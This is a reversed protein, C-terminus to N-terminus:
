AAEAAPRINEFREQIDTGDLMLEEFKVRGYGRSGCGGLADHELLKLGLLLTDFRAEDGAGNDGDVSFVRYQIEFRFRAGAPVREVTRPGAQGVKGRIRDITVETKAETYPLGRRRIEQLWSEDLRADRFLARTPGGEWGNHTTGFVILVPDDEPYPACNGWGWPRGDPELKGLHWELLSRVKGKLSSGPIIPEETVPDLIVPLDMGGIEVSEKGAGIHLGTVCRIVGTLTKVAVLKDIRSM